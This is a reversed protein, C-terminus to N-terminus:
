IHSIIIKFHIITGILYAQRIEIFDTYTCSYKLVSKYIQIPIGLPFPVKFIKAMCDLM